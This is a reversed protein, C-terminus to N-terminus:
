KLRRNIRIIQRYIENHWEKEITDFVQEKTANYSNEFFHTAPMKGTSGKNKRRVREKTGNEVLHGHWGKYRGAKKAGVIIAIEQPVEISGISRMLTGTRKPVNIKAAAILPKAARRFGALFIKRQDTYSLSNFFDELIRVQGTDIKVEM